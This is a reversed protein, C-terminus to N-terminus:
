LHEDVLETTEVVPGAIIRTKGDCKPCSIDQPKEPTNAVYVVQVQHGGPCDVKRSVTELKANREKADAILTRSFEIMVESDHCIRRTDSARKRAAAIIKKSDESRGNNIPM